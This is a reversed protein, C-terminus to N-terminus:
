VALGEIRRFVARRKVGRSHPRVQRRFPVVKWLNYINAKSFHRNVRSFYINIVSFYINVLERGSEAKLAECSAYFM